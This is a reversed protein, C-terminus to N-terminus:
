LAMAPSPEDPVVMSEVHDARRDYSAALALLAWRAGRGEATEARERADSAQNRLWAVLSRRRGSSGAEAIRERVSIRPTEPFVHIEATTSQPDSHRGSSYARRHNMPSGRIQFGDAARRMRICSSGTFLTCDRHNLFDLRAKHFSKVM